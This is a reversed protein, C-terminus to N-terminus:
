FTLIPQKNIYGSQMIQPKCYVDCHCNFLRLFFYTSSTRKFFECCSMGMENTNKFIKFLRKKGISHTLIFYKKTGNIPVNHSYLNV